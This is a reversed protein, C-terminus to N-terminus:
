KWRSRRGARCLGENTKPKRTIDRWSSVKVPLTRLGCAMSCGMNVHKPLLPIGRCLLLAKAQIAHSIIPKPSLRSLSRGRSASTLPAQSPEPESHSLGPLLLGAALLGFGLARRRPPRKPKAGTKVFTLSPRM